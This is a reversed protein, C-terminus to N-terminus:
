KSLCCFSNGTGTKGCGPTCLSYSTIMVHAEEAQSVDFKVDLDYSKFSEMSTETDSMGFKAHAEAAVAHAKAMDQNGMSLSFAAQRHHHAAEAYQAAAEHHAKAIRETTELEKSIVRKSKSM